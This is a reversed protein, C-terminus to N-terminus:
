FYGHVIAMTRLVPANYPTVLVGVGFLLQYANAKTAIRLFTGEIIYAATALYNREIIVRVMDSSPFIRAPNNKM